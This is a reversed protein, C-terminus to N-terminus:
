SRGDRFGSRTMTGCTADGGRVWTGTARLRWWLTLFRFWLPELAAALVQRARDRARLEGPTARSELALSGLSLLVGWLYAVLFFAWAFEAGILGLSLGVALALLGAVEVVPGAAEVTTMFGMGGLGLGRYRPNLIVRRHIRLTDLMGRHWRRRQNGLITRTSPAETFAVPDSLFQVRQATGNEIGRRRLRVVLEFDEGISGHQYGGAAIVSHRHFTGFAGSIIVNGGLRNWGLRGIFFARVYEVTQVLELQRRPVGRGVVRGDRVVDGNVPRITGGVAVTGPREVFARAMRLLADPAVVTDADLASFLDGSAVTIGANLADAKGGNEKDVVILAPHLPSRYVTRIPASALEPEDLVGGVATSPAHPDPILEFAEQLVRLTGDKSGDNIVVVELDPYELTLMGEVADVITVEEGYAPALVSLRPVDPTRHWWDFPSHATRHRRERLEAGALALQLTYTGNVVLFYGLALVATSVLVYSVITTM